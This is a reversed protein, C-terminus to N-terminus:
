VRNLYWCHFDGTIIELQRIVADELDNSIDSNTVELGDCQTSSCSVLVAGRRHRDFMDVLAELGLMYM